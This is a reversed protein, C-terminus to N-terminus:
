GYAVPGEDLDNEKQVIESAFKARCLPKRIRSPERESRDRSLSGPVPGLRVAGARPESVRHDVRVRRIEGGMRVLGIKRLRPDDLRLELSHGEGIPAPEPEGQHVTLEAVAVEGVEV